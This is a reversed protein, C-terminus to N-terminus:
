KQLEEPAAGMGRTGQSPAQGQCGDERGELGWRVESTRRCHGFGGSYLYVKIEGQQHFSRTYIRPPLLLQGGDGPGVRRVCM